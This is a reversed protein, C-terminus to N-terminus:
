ISTAGFRSDGWIEKAGFVDKWDPLCGCLQWSVREVIFTLGGHNDTEYTKGLILNFPKWTREYAPYVSIAWIEEEKSLMESTVTM